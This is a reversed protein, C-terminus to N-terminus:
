AYPISLSIYINGLLGRVFEDITASDAQYAVIHRSGRPSSTPLGYLEKQEVVHRLVTPWQSAPLASAPHKLGSRRQKIVVPPPSVDHAEDHALLDQV